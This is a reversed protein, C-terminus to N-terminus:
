WHCGINSFHEKWRNWSGRVGSNLYEPMLFQRKKTLIYEGPLQCSGENDQMETSNIVGTTALIAM